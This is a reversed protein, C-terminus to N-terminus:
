EVILQGRQWPHESCSYAFEGPEDFTISKSRGPAIMGTTWSGEMDEACHPITGENKWTVATGAAIRTRTPFFAYEDFAERTIELGSDPVTPGMIIEEASMIRGAFTTEERPTPPAELEGVTGNLKFAWVGATTGVSVYQDGDIAYSIVASNASSGTQFRWVTEGTEASYANLYGDTEGHFLLGSATAMFGSGNQQTRYPVEHQWVLKNTKSSMAGLLGKYKIGPVPPAASFVKPDEYRKMWMPWIAGTAYFNSTKPNYALPAARTTLIPYMLNPTDYDFVDYHCQAIFGEPIMDEPACDVGMHDAGVPFPQTPSTHLRESQPVPREEVPWIPEGTARDFMFLYGYTTMVAVAARTEGEVVADFLVPPSSSDAEWIDHHTTQFHWKLEGTKVDLAVISDSYLNDGKRAEGGWQPIPNGITVYVLGLEPDAGPAAWAGSGGPKWYDDDQPWTEAGPGDYPVTHWTWLKEGTIADFGVVRGRIGYDGNALGAIVVGNVHIPGGSIFQGRTAGEDGVRGVWVQEGTDQKLGVVQSNGLGVFIMDGGTEIGKFLGYTSAPLESEWIKAGTKPDLAYAKTTGAVFMKGNAVTPAGRPVESPPGSDFEHFWAGSLKSLNSMTIQDLESFRQNDLGGNVGPWTVDSQQESCATMTFALVLASAASMWSGRKIM